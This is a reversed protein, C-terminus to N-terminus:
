ALFYQNYFETKDVGLREACSDSFAIIDEIEDNISKEVENKAVIVLNDAAVSGMRYVDVHRDKDTLNWKSKDVVWEARFVLTTTIEKKVVVGVILEKLRAALKLVRNMTCADLTSTNITNM